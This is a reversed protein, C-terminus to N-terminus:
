PTTAAHQFTLVKQPKGDKLLATAIGIYPTNGMPVSAETLGMQQLTENYVPVGWKEWRGGCLRIRHKGDVFDHTLRTTAFTDIEQNPLALVPKASDVPSGRHVYITAFRAEIEKELTFYAHERQERSEAPATITMGLAIVDAGIKRQISMQFTATAFEFKPETYWQGFVDLAAWVSPFMDLKHGAADFAALLVNARSELQADDVTFMGEEKMVFTKIIQEKLIGIGNNENVWSM